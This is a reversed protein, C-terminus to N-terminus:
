GPCSRLNFTVCDYLKSPPNRQCATNLSVTSQDCNLALKQGGFLAYVNATISPESGVTEKQSSDSSVCPKPVFCISCFPWESVNYMPGRASCAKSNRGANFYHHRLDVKFFFLAIRDCRSESIVAPLLVMPEGPLLGYAALFECAATFMTLHTPTSQM